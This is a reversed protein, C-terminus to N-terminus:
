RSPTAQLSHCMAFVRGVVEGSEGVLEAAMFSVDGAGCGVDIVRMGEAIGGDRLFGRTIRDILRAQITLRELERASHGLVYTRSNTSRETLARV